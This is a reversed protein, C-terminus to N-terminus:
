LELAIENGSNDKMVIKKCVFTNYGMYKNVLIVEFDLVMFDKLTNKGYYAEPMESNIKLRLVKGDKSTNSLVIKTFSDTCESSKFDFRGNNLDSLLEDNPKRVKVTSM